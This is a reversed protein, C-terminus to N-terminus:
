HRHTKRNPLHSPRRTTPRLQQRNNNNQQSNQTQKHIKGMRSNQIEDIRLIRSPQQVARLISASSKNLEEAKLGVLREDLTKTALNRRRSVFYGHSDHIQWM